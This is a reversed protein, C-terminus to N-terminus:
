KPLFFLECRCIAVLLLFIVLDKSAPAFIDMQFSVSFHVLIKSQYVAFNNKYYQDSHTLSLFHFLNHQCQIQTSSVTCNKHTLNVTILSNIHKTLSLYLIPHFPYFHTVLVNRTLNTKKLFPGVGAEKKNIKM